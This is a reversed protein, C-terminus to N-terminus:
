LIVCPVGTSLSCDPMLMSKRRPFSGMVDKKTGLIETIIQEGEEPTIWLPSKEMMSTICSRWEEESKPDEFIRDLPHCKSCKPEYLYKWSVYPFPEEVEQSQIYTQSFLVYITLVIVLTYFSKM